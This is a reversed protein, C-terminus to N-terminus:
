QSWYEWEYDCWNDWYNDYPRIPICCDGGGPYWGQTRRIRKWKIISKITLRAIRVRITLQCEEEKERLFDRCARQSKPNNDVKQALLGEM